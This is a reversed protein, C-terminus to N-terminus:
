NGTVRSARELIWRGKASDVTSQYSANLHGPTSGTDLTLHYTDGAVTWTANARTANEYRGEIRGRIGGLMVDGTILPGDGNVRMIVELPARGGSAFQGQGAFFGTWPQTAALDDGTPRLRPEHSHRPRIDEPALSKAWAIQMGQLDRDDLLTSLEGLQAVVHDVRSQREFIKLADANPAPSAPDLAWAEFEAYDGWSASWLSRMLSLKIDRTLRALDIQDSSSVAGSAALRNTFAIQEQLQLLRAKDNLIQTDSPQVGSIHISQPVVRTPGSPMGIGIGKGDIDLTPAKHINYVLIAAGFLSFFVGPGVQQINLKLEDKVSIEASGHSKTQAFLRYGFWCFLVGAVLMGVRVAVVGLAFVMTIEM